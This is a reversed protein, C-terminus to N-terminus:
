WEADSGDREKDWGCKECSGQARSLGAHVARLMASLLREEVSPIEPQHFVDWAEHVFEPKDVLTGLPEVVPTPITLTPIPDNETM